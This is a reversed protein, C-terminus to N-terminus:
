EDGGDGGDGGSGQRAPVPTYMQARAAHQMCRSRPEATCRSPLVGRLVQRRMEELTEYAPLGPRAPQEAAGAPARSAGEGAQMWKAEDCRVAEATVSPVGASPPVSPQYLLDAFAAPPVGSMSYVAYELAKIYRGTFGYMVHVVDGRLSIRYRAPCQFAARLDASTKQLAARAVAAAGESPHRSAGRMWAYAYWLVRMVVYSSVIAPYTARTLVLVSIPTPVATPPVPLEALRREVEDVFQAPPHTFLHPLPLVAGAADDFRRAVEEPLEVSATRLLAPNNVAAALGTPAAAPEGM